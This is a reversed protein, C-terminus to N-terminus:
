HSSGSGRAVRPRRAPRSSAGDWGRDRSTTAFSCPVVRAPESAPDILRTDDEADGSGTYLKGRRSWGGCAVVEGGAELVYYTGDELLIPDVSAIYRIASTCAPEEYFRPFHAEASTQMLADIAPRDAPTAVRLEPALGNM